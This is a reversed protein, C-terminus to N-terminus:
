QQTVEMSITQGSYLTGSFAVSLERGDTEADLQDIQEVDTEQFIAERLVEEVEDNELDSRRRGFIREYDTGHSEDLPLWGEMHSPYAPRVAGHNRRRLHAGHEWRRRPPIDMTEPDIKLTMNRDVQKGGKSRHSTQGDPCTHIHNKLSIGGATVDGTATISGIVTVDGTVAVDGIITIDGTVKTDGLVEIGNEKVVLYISGGETGIAYGDPLSNSASGPLIGGIFIADTASHNRETNPEGETGSSVANDIDHDCFVVLGIDGAKYAVKKAFGGGRDCVIPVGLIPPQSQYTGQELRKSIPQVDVTQKAGDYATVKVIQAVNIAEAAKKKQQQEYRYQPTNM